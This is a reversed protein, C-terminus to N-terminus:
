FAFSNNESVNASEKELAKGLYTLMAVRRKLFAVHRHYAKDMPRPNDEAKALNLEAVQLQLPLTSPNLDIGGPADPEPLSTESDFVFSPKKHMKVKRSKSSKRKKRYPDPM